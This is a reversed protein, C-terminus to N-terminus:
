EEDLISLADGAQLYAVANLLSNPDDDFRGLGTNCSDCIFDRIYGTHHDHDAVVKATVGAITRKQCIPCKFSDGKKPRKKEMRKAQLSKPARKDIDTRCKRCSPRRIIGHKNRQNVDFKSVSLLRHCRNCIKKAFKDGTERVNLEKAQSAPITWTKNIGILWVVMTRGNDEKVLGVSNEPFRTARKEPVGQEHLHGKGGVCVVWKHLM